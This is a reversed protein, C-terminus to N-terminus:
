PVDPLLGFWAEAEGATVPVRYRRDIEKESNGAEKAVRAKSHTIEIRYSIFSHRLCNSPLKFGARLALWRLKEMAGSECLVGAREDKPTLELWAIAADCLPVHRWAPTNQKAVTVRVFKRDLHVDEWLQRVSRDARKGHIEDSRIGCFGSLVLAPLHQPHEARCWALLKKFTAPDIIGIDTPEEKARMTREIALPAGEPLHGTDRAWNWLTVARKRFDNRTVGDSYRGLYTNLQSVTISHLLTEGGLATVLPKLKARYTRDGEHGAKEKADIFRDVADRLKLPAFSTANRAAWAEAAALIPGGCLERAKAWEELAALVPTAGAIRRAAVLEDRDGRSMGAAEVHGANLKEATLGAEQLAVDPTAFTKRTRGNEGRWAVVYEFGDRARPHAVRYVKVTVNGVTIKQPWSGQTKRAM